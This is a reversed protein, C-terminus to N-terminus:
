SNFFIHKTLVSQNKTQHLLFITHFFRVTAENNKFTTSEITMPTSTRDVYLAGAYTARFGEFTSEQLTVKGNRVYICGGHYAHKGTTETGDFHVWNIALFGGLMSIFGGEKKGTIGLLGTQGWTLKLYNLTLKGGPILDFHRHGDNATGDKDDVRNSQLERYTGTIGEITMDGSVDIRKSMKCGEAPVFHTGTTGVAVGDNTSGENPTRGAANHWTCVHLGVCKELDIDINTASTYTIPTDTDGPSCVSFKLNQTSLSFISKGNNSSATNAKMVNSNGNFTVDAFFWLYM